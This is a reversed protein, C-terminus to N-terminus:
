VFNTFFIFYKNEIVKEGFDHRKHSLTPFYPVALRAVSPLVIRRMRKAHQTVLAVSVCEYRTVIIANGRCLNNRSRAEIHRKHTCQM